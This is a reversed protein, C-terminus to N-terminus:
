VLVILQALALRQVLAPLQMVLIIIENSLYMRGITTIAIKGNAMVVMARTEGLDPVAFLDDVERALQKTPAGADATIAALAEESVPEEIIGSTDGCAALAPLLAFPLISLPSRKKM